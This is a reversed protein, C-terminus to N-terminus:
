CFAADTIRARFFEGEDQRDTGWWWGARFVAPVRVGSFVAEEDVAVGFPHRGFPAQGSQGV